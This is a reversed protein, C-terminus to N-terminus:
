FPISMGIIDEAEEYKLCDECINGWSVEYLPKHMGCCDCLIPENVTDPYYSRWGYDYRPSESVFQKEWFAQPLYEMLFSLTDEMTLTDLSEIARHENYYGISLNCCALTSHEAYTMIDTFSGITYKYSGYEEMLEFMEDNDYGYSACDSDGKRDLGIFCSVKDIIAKFVDSKAFATGGTGGKEELDTLVYIYPQQDKILEHMIYVGARDDAGLGHKIDANTIFGDIVLFDKPKMSFVTDTHASLMPVYSLITNPVYCAWLKDKYVTFNSLDVRSEFLSVVENHTNARLFELVDSKM